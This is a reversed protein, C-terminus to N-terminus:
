GLGRSARRMVNVVSMWPVPSIRVRLGLLRAAASGRRLRSCGAPDTMVTV